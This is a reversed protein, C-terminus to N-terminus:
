TKKPRGPKMKSLITKIEDVQAPSWLRVSLEGRPVRAAEPIRGERELQKLWSTDRNVERSLETLTLYDQFKDPKLFSVDRMKYRLKVM